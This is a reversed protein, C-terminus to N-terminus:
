LKLSVGLSWDRDPAQDSDSDYVAASFALRKALQWQLLLSWERSVDTVDNSRDEYAYNVSASFSDTLNRGLQASGVARDFQQYNGPDTWIYGGEVSAFWRGRNYLLSPRLSIDRSDTGFGKDADGNDHKYELTLFGTWRPNLLWRRRVRFYADEMASESSAGSIDYTRSYTTLLLTRTRTVQGSVSVDRRSWPLELELHWDGVDLTPTLRYRWTEVDAEVKRDYHQREYSADAWVQFVPASSSAFLFDLNEEEARCHGAVLVLCLLVLRNRM